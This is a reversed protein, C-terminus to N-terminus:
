NTQRNKDFVVSYIQKDVELWISVKVKTCPTSGNNCIGNGDAKVEYAYCNAGAVGALIPQNDKTCADVSKSWKPDVVSDQSFGNKQLFSATNLQTRTPYSHHTVYYDSLNSLLVSLDERRDADRVVRQEAQHQIANITRFITLGVVVFSLVVIVWLLIKKLSGLSRPPSAEPRVSPKPRFPSVLPQAQPRPQAQVVPRSVPQLQPQSPPFPAQQVAPFNMHGPTAPMARQKATSFAATIWEQTWGSERLAAFLTM